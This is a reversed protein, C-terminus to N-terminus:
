ISILPLIWSTDSKYSFLESFSNNFSSNIESQKITAVKNESIVQAQLHNNSNVSGNPGQSIDNSNSLSGSSVVVNVDIKKNEASVFVSSFAFSFIILILIICFLIKM